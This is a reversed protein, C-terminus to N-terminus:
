QMKIKNIRSEIFTVLARVSDEIPYQDTDIIMDSLMPLEYPSDIGTFDKIEGARAKSYLGKPDRQECTELSCKVYIEAYDNPQFQQRIYNRFSEYPSIMPVLVVFGKELFMVAVEMARRMNEMRDEEAFGLDQNLGQRLRDGDIVVCRIERKALEREAECALTTKGSGSLGTLWIISGKHNNRKEWEIRHM